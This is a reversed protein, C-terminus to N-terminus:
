KDIIHKRNGASTTCEVFNSKRPCYDLYVHTEQTLITLILNFFHEETAKEKIKMGDQTLRNTRSVRKELIGAKGLM